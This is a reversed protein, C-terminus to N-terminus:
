CHIHRHAVEVTGLPGMRRLQEAGSTAAAVSDSDYLLLTAEDVTLGTLTM